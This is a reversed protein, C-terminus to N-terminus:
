YKNGTLMAVLKKKEDNSMEEFMYAQEATVLRMDNKSADRRCCPCTLSSAFWKELCKMHCVHCCRILLAIDDNILQELCVVCNSETKTRANYLKMAKQLLHVNEEVENQMRRIRIMDDMCKKLTDGMHVMTDYVLLFPIEIRKNEDDDDDSIVHQLFQGEPSSYRRRMSQLFIRNSRRTRNNNVDIDSPRRTQGHQEDSDM